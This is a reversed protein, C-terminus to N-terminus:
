PNGHSAPAPGPSELDAHHSNEVAAPTKYDLEGRLGQKNWRYHRRRGLL